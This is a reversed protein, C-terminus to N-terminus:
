ANSSSVLRAMRQDTVSGSRPGYLRVSASTCLPMKQRWTRHIPTEHHAMTATARRGNRWTAFMAQGAYKPM